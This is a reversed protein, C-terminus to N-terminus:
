RYYRQSEEESLGLLFRATQPDKYSDKNFIDYFSKTSYALSNTEKYEHIGFFFDDYEIDPPWDGEFECTFDLRFFPQPKKNM